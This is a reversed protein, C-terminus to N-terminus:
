SYFSNNFKFKNIPIKLCVLWVIDNIAFTLSQEINKSEPTDDVNDEVEEEGNVKLQSEGEQKILDPSDSKLISSEPANEM